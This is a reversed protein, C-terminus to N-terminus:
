VLMNVTFIEFVQKRYTHGIPIRTGENLYIENAEISRIKTSNVIFSRHVRIFKKEPLLTEIKSLSFNTTYKSDPLYICIYNQKAEVACMDEIEIRVLRGKDCKIFFHDEVCLKKISETCKLLIQFFDIKSLPKILYDFHSLNFFEIMEINTIFVLKYSWHLLAHVNNIELESLQQDILIVDPKDSLSFSFLMRTISNSCGVLKSTKDDNIYSCVLDSTTLDETVVYIKLM